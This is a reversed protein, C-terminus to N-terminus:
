ERRTEAFPSSAAPKYATLFQNLYPWARSSDLLLVSDERWAALAAGLVILNEDPLDRALYVTREAAQPAARLSRTGVAAFLGFALSLGAFRILMATLLRM